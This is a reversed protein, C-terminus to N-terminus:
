DVLNIFEIHAAEILNQTKESSWVTTSATATDDIMAGGAGTLSIVDNQISVGTGASLTNQKGSILQDVKSISYSQLDKATGSANDNISGVMGQVVTSWTGLRDSYSRVMYTEGDALMQFRQLVIGNTEDSIVMLTAPAKSTGMDVLIRYNGSETFANLDEELTEISVQADVINQKLSTQQTVYTKTAYSSLDPQSASIVGNNITINTGATLTDQKGSLATQVDASLAYPSLDPQSASIVNNEITINDGATLKDQKAGEVQTIATQVDEALAYPTLDPQQASITNGVITINSGPTLTDQKGNQLSTIDSQVTNQFQTFATSDTKTDLEAQIAAMDQTHASSDEKKALEEAVDNQLAYPSLDPQQASITNGSISINDGATLTDQKGSLGTQVEEKTAFGSLDPHSASIVNDEITINSGATLVDQKSESLETIASEVETLATTVEEKTAYDSLDQPRASIVNNVITVNDGATLKDQKGDVVLSIDVSADDLENVRKTIANVDQGHYLEGDQYNERLKTRAM